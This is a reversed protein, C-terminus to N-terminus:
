APIEEPQPMQLLWGERRQTIQADRVDIWGWRNDIPTFELGLMERLDAVTVVEYRDIVMALTELVREAEDRSVIVYGRADSTVRPASLQPLGRPDAYRQSPLSPQNYSTYTTLGKQVAAGLVSSPMRSGPDHRYADKYITRGASGVIIDYLMNRSKPIVHEHIAFNMLGPVDIEMLIRKLKMWPGIKRVVVESSTIREIKKEETPKGGEKAKHSNNQYDTM